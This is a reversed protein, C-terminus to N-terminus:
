QTIEINKKKKQEPTNSDSIAKAILVIAIIPLLVTASGLVAAIIGIIGGIVGFVIGIVSGILGVVLGIIGGILGIVLGFIGFIVGFVLEFVAGLIGTSALIALVILGILIAQNNNPQNSNKRKEM